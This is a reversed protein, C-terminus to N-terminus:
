SAKKYLKLTDELALKMKNFAENDPTEETVGKLTKEFNMLANVMDVGIHEGRLMKNAAELMLKQVEIAEELDKASKSKIKKYGKELEAM